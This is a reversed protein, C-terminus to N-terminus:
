WIQFIDSVDNQVQKKRCLKKTALFNKAAM